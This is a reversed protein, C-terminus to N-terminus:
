ESKGHGDHHHSRLKNRQIYMVISVSGIAIIGVFAFFIMVPDITM